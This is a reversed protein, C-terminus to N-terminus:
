DVRRIEEIHSFLNGLLHEDIVDRVEAEDSTPSKLRFHISYQNEWAQTWDSERDEWEDREPLDEVEWEDVEISGPDLQYGLPALDEQRSLLARGFYDPEEQASQEGLIALEVEWEARDGALGLDGLRKIEEPDLPAFDEFLKLHKMLKNIRDAMPGKESLFV